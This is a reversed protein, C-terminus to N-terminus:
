LSLTYLDRMDGYKGTKNYAKELDFFVGSLLENRVFADRITVDLLVLYDITSRKNKFGCQRETILEHTELYWILRDNIMREM